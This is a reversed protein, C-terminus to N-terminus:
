HKIESIDEVHTEDTEVQMELKRAMWPDTEEIALHPTTIADINETEGVSEIVSESVSESVSEIVSELEIFKKKKITNAEHAADKLRDKRSEYFEDKQEQNKLYGQMLTNLSSEAFEQDGIEDPNPSWPCWCGVQAVYVNHTSDIRKLVQARIEAERLTDYSGRVKIGRITTQFNNKELYDRELRESHASKFFRFADSARRADFMFDFKDEIKRLSEVFDINDQYVKYMQEWLEKLDVSTQEIFNEFMFVQKEKIVDEPSVFSLCVYRQGRIEPDQELYDIKSTPVLDNDTM